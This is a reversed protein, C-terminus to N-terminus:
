GRRHAHQSNASSPKLISFSRDLHKSVAAGKKLYFHGRAISRLRGSWPRDTTGHAADIGTSSTTNLSPQARTTCGLPLVVGQNLATTRAFLSCLQSCARPLPRLSSLSLSLLPSLLSFSFRLSLAWLLFPGPLCAPSRRGSDILVLPRTAASENVNGSRWWGSRDVDNSTV